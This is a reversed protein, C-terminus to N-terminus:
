AQTKASKLRTSAVLIGILGMVFITTLAIGIRYSMPQFVFRVSRTGEKLAVGTLAYDPQLIQAEVGDVFVRWGSYFIQSLVLIGPRESTVKLAIENSSPNSWEIEATREVPPASGSVGALEAPLSPLVLTREPDFAPDKLRRLRAAEDPLVEIAHEAAPVFLVRPLARRNEFVQVARETFVLSFRDPRAMLAKYSPGYINTVFYKANLLDLRRDDAAAIKPGSLSVEDLSYETLDELLTKIARLGIDYGGVATLGYMLEFNAGYTVDLAAIRSQAPDHKRLFSVLPADPYMEAPSGFPMYGYAYTILDFALIGVAASAFIKPRLWGMIRMIVLGYGVLLFVAAATPTQFWTLESKRLNEVAWIGASALALSVTSAAVMVYRLNRPPKMRYDTLASLGLGALVALSFDVILLVRGNKLGSVVPIHDVLWHIPPGGVVVQLAVLITLLFFLVSRRNRHLLALPALFLTIMGAYAASEPVALGSSNPNTSIDRSFFSLLERIPKVAWKIDLTHNTQSLWELTPLTQISSLGIATIGAAAFIALRGLTERKSQGTFLMQWLAYGVGTLTLHAATEPHGALVPLAFAVATLVFAPADAKVFCLRHVAFCILPLWLAADTLSTAQWTTMLGALSFIIGASVAGTTSGGISRVFLATLSGTLVLHLILKITWASPSPLVYYLANLPYFLASQANALFPTGSLIHPNWLPLAGNRYASAQLYRWPYFFTVMDGYEARRPDLIPTTRVSDWPPFSTVVQTPFPIKGNLVPLYTFLAVLLFVGPLLPFLKRENDPKILM